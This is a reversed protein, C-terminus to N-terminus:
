GGGKAFVGPKFEGKKSSINWAAKLCTILINEIPVDQLQRERLRKLAGSVKKCYEKNKMEKM